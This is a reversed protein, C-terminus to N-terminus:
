QLHQSFINSWYSNGFLQFAVKRGGPSIEDLVKCFSEIDEKFTEKIHENTEKIKGNIILKKPIQKAWHFRTNLKNNDQDTYTLIKSSVKTM